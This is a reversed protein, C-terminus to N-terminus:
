AGLERAVAGYSSAGCVCGRMVGAKDWWILTPYDFALGNAKLLPTLTTALTRGAEIVATRAADGDAPPVGPATWLNDPGATWREYLGWDRNVWLEAVTAREPAASQALGNRDPRAIVIVRTDVGAARLKPFEAKEFAICGPCARFSVLYLKPGPAHPSVWGSGDLAKAIETQNKTLTLPRSGAGLEWWVWLGGGTVLMLLFLVFGLRLRKMAHVGQDGLAGADGERLSRDVEGRARGDREARAASAGPLDHHTM